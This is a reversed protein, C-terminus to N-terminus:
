LVSPKTTRRTVREKIWTAGALRVFTDRELKKTKLLRKVAEASKRKVTIANSSSQQKHEADQVHRL